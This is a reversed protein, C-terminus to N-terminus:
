TLSSSVCGAEQDPQAVLDRGLVIHPPYMGLQALDIRSM